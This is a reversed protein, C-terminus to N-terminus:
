PTVDVCVLIRVKGPYKHSMSKWYALRDETFPETTNRTYFEPALAPVEEDLKVVHVWGETRNFFVTTGTNGLECEPPPAPITDREHASQADM